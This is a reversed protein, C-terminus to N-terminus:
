RLSRLELRQTNRVIPDGDQGIGDVQALEIGCRIARAKTLPLEAIGRENQEESNVGRL